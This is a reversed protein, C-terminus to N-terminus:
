FKYSYKTILETIRSQNVDVFESAVRACQRIGMDAGWVLGIIFGIILGILVGCILIVMLKKRQINM